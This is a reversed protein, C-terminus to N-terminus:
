GHGFHGLVADTVAAVVRGPIRVTEDDTGWVARVEADGFAYFKVWCGPGGLTRAIEVAVLEGSPHSRTVEVDLALESLWTSAAEYARELGYAEGFDYGDLVGDELNEVEAAITKAYEMAENM